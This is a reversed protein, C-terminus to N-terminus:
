DEVGSIRKAANKCMEEGCCIKGDLLDYVIRGVLNDSCILFHGFHQHLCKIHEIDKTGGVGTNLIKEYSGFSEELKHNLNFISRRLFYYNVHADRMIEVFQPDSDIFSKVEIIYSNSELEHIKKNLFPCSLWLPNSISKYDIDDNEKVPDLLITVPFGYRCRTLVKLLRISNSNLQWKLVEHDDPFTVHQKNYFIKGL